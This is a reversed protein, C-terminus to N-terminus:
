KTRPKTAPHPCTRLLFPLTLLLAPLSGWPCGGMGLLPPCRKGHRCLPCSALDEHGPTHGGHVDEDQEGAQCRGLSVHCSPCQAPHM